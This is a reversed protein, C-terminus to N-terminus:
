VDCFVEYVRCWTFFNALGGCVVANRLQFELTHLFHGANEYSRFHPGCDCVLQVNAVRSWDADESPRLLRLSENVMMNGIQADHDLIESILQM